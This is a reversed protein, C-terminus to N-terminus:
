LYLAICLIRKLGRVLLVHARGMGVVVAVVPIRAM